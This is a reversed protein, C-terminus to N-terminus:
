KGKEAAEAAKRFMSRLMNGLNMRIMGYNLHAYRAQLAKVDLNNKVIPTLWIAEAAECGKAAMVEDIECLLTHAMDDGNDQVRVKVGSDRLEVTVPKHLARFKDFGTLGEIRGEEIESGTIADDIEADSVKKARPAKPAAQPKTAKFEAFRAFFKGESFEEGNVTIYHWRGRKEIDQIRAVKETTTDLIEQGKEIKAINFKATENSM